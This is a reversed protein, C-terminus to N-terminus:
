KMLHFELNRVDKFASLVENIRNRSIGTQIICFLQMENKLVTCNFQKIIRMVDNMETYNFQLEYNIEVAKQVVPVSKVGQKRKHISLEIMCRNFQGDVDDDSM